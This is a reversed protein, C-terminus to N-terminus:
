PTEVEDQDIQINPESSEARYTYLRRQMIGALEETFLECKLALAGSKNAYRNYAIGAPIAAVLGMATAILAESIGPAVMALTAQQVSGLQRFSHMIGWVTGFLGIYPSISQVTALFSLNNDLEDVEKVCTVHMARKVSDLIVEPEDINQKCGRIFEKFGSVFIKETVKLDDEKALNTYLKSLDIGSWFTADFEDIRRKASRLSARKYFIFTWSGVSALLLTLMVFQVISSANQFLSILSLDATM